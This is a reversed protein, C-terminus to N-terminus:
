RLLPELAALHKSRRRRALAVDRQAIADVVARQARETEGNIAARRPSRPGPVQVHARTLEVLVRVFLAIAPNGGLLAINVHLDDRIATEFGAAVNADILVRLREVDSPTAREAALAVAESDLDRWVAILDSPTIDRHELYVTAARVIPDASPATVVLGGGPGRKMTAVEHYELLRVAERVASRSVDFRETLEIESGIVTGIPWNRDVIDVIIARAVQGALKDGTSDDLVWQLSRPAARHRGIWDGLADLHAVMRREAAAADGATIAEVIREHAHSSADLAATRETAPRDPYSWLATLRGLVDTFLEAAPNRAAHAVVTHLVHHASHDLAARERDTAALVRLGDIDADDARDAALRAITGEIRKRADILEGL